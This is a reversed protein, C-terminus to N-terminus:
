NYPFCEDSMGRKVVMVSLWSFQRAMVDRLTGCFIKEDDLTLNEGVLAATDESVGNDILYRSTEEPRQQLGTIIILHRKRRFADLMFGRKDELEEESEHFSIIVAEDINIQAAAAAIQVSSIGPVIKVEFDHFVKLLGTLGSSICPDGVRLVAVPAQCKRAENAAEQVVQMYNGADQLYVKKGATLSKVPQFNLEWGVVVSAESIVRQAETTLYRSSGPGVGVIYVKDKSM